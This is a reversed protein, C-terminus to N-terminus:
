RAPPSVIFREIDAAAQAPTEWHPAHGVDAYRIAVRGPIKRALAEQMQADFVADRDGWLTLTPTAIPAAAAEDALLGEVAGRWTALALKMSEDVFIALQRPALPRFVTSAQFGEVYARPVHDEFGALDGRMEALGPHGGTSPAAGILILSALRDPRREAVRQAVIAGLSHGVLHVPGDGLSEIFAIADAAFDTTAYTEAAASDGHGRQDLGFLRFKGALGEFLPEFSRWSDTFGHLLVLRPGGAGLSVFHRRGGPLAIECHTPAAPATM